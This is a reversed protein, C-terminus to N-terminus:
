EKDQKSDTNSGNTDNNDENIFPRVQQLFHIVTTTALAYLPLKYVINWPESLFYSPLWLLIVTWFAIHYSLCFPCTFLMGFFWDEIDEEDNKTYNDLIKYFYERVKTFLEGYFWASTIADTALIIIIFDLFSM